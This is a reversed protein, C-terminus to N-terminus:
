KIGDQPVTGVSITGGELRYLYAAVAQTSAAGFLHWLWHTGMPLGTMGREDVLRCFWAVAFTAVGVLVWSGHRFRTRVLVVLMPALIVAALSAYNLNVLLNGAEGPLNRFLVANVAVFAAVLGAATMVVRARGLDRALRATLYVSAALGLLQIPIVDLLFYARRTRFAHYLTGGVGGALLVPVAATLFPFRRWRGGIVAAWYVALAVFVAATAANFPEAPVPSDPAFPDAPTEAYVSGGDAGRFPKPPAPPANEPPTAAPSQGPM